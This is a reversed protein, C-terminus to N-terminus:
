QGGLKETKIHIAAFPSELIDSIPFGSADVFLVRSM